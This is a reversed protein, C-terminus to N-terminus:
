KGTGPKGPYGSRGGIRSSRGVEALLDPGGVAVEGQFLGSM